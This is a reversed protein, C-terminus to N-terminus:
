QKLLLSASPQTHPPVCMAPRSINGDLTKYALTNQQRLCQSHPSSVHTCTCKFWKYHSNRQYKNLSTPTVFQVKLLNPTESTADPETRSECAWGPSSGALRLSYIHSGAACLVREASRLFCHGARMCGTSALQWCFHQQVRLAVCRGASPTLGCQLHTRETLASCSSHLAAAPALQMAGPYPLLVGQHQEPWDIRHQLCQHAQESRRIARQCVTGGRPAGYACAHAPSEAGQAADRLGGGDRRQARLATVPGPFVDAADHHSRILEM